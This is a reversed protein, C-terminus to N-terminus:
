SHIQVTTPEVSVAACYDCVETNPNAAKFRRPIQRGCDCYDNASLKHELARELSDIQDTMANGM